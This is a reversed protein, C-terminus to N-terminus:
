ADSLYSSIISLIKNIKPLAPVIFRHYMVQLNEYNYNNHMIYLSLQLVVNIYMSRNVFNLLSILPEAQSTVDIFSEVNM